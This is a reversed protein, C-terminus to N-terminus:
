VCSMLYSNKAIKKAIQWIKALKKDMVGIKLTLYRYKQM